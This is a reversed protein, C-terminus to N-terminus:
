GDPAQYKTARVNDHTVKPNVIWRMLERAIKLSQNFQEQVFISLKKPHEGVPRFYTDVAIQVGGSGEVPFGQVELAGPPQDVVLSMTQVSRRIGTNADELILNTSSDVLQMGTVKTTAEMFPSRAVGCLLRDAEEISDTPALINCQFGIRTPIALRLVETTLGYWLEVQEGFEQSTKIAEDLSIKGESAVDVAIPSVNALLKLDKHRFHAQQVGLGTPRWVPHAKRIHNFLAASGTSFCGVM